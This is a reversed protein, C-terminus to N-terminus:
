LGAFGVAGTEGAMLILRGVRSTKITTMGLILYTACRAMRNVLISGMTQHGALGRLDIRLAGGAMGIDPRTELAGILVTQRFAGHGAHIAVIRMAAGQGTGNLGRAGAFWAAGLAVAIFDSRERELVSGHAQFAAHRAMLGVSGRVRAHQRAVFHALDAHLAVGVQRRGGRSGVPGEPGDTRRNVIQAAGAELVTGEAM